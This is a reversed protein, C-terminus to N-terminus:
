RLLKRSPDINLRHSMVNPDIGEMNLHAWAFIDLHQKLFESIVKQLEESLSRGLKLQSTRLPGM